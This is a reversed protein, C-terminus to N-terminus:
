KWRFTAGIMSTDRRYLLEYAEQFQDYRFHHTVLEAPHLSGDAMLSLIYKLSNILTFRQTGDFLPYKYPTFGASGRVAKLTLNKAHIWKMALPNVDLDDEGRGPLSLLAVRGGPRVSEMAVRYAPWPNAALVVLDIGIGDTFDLLKKELNPADSFWVEHAGMKRAINVRSESDTLAVVRAGGVRALALTTLGLIGTGVVTVSEGMVYDGMRLSIYGLHHLFTFAADQSPVQDPIRVLLGTQKVIFASQHPTGTWIRDGAKFRTVGSGVAMITAANNYGSSRPYRPEWPIQEAGEYNGRETGPSIASYDTEAYIEDPQLHGADLDREELRM